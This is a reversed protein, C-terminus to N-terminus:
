VHDTHKAGKMKMDCCMSFSLECLCFIRFEIQAKGMQLLEESTLGNKKPLVEDLVSLM